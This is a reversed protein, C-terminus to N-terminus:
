RELHKCATGRKMLQVLGNSESRWQQRTPVNGSVNGNTRKLSAPQRRRRVQRLSLIHIEASPGHTRNHTIKM